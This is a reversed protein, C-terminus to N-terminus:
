SIALLPSPPRKSAAVERTLLGLPEPPRLHAVDCSSPSSRKHHASRSPRIRTRQTQSAAPSHLHRQLTVLPQCFYFHSSTIFAPSSPTSASTQLFPPIQTLNEIQDSLCKFVRRGNVPTPSTRGLRHNPCSHNVRAKICISFCYVRSPKTM